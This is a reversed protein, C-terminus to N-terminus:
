IRRTAATNQHRTIRRRHHSPVTAQTASRNYLCCRRFKLFDEPAATPLDHIGAAAQPSPLDITIEAFIFREPGALELTTRTRSGKLVCKGLRSDYISTFGNLTRSRKCPSRLTKRPDFAPLATISRPSASFVDMFSTM